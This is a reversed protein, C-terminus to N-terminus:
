ALRTLRVVLQTEIVEFECWALQVAGAALPMDVGSSWESEVLREPELALLDRVRFNHLPISVDLEVPLRAIQAGFAKANTEVDAGEDATSAPVLAREQQPAVAIQTGAAGAQAAQNPGPQNPGPQNQGASGPAAAARNPQTNPPAGPARQGQSAQSPIAVTQTAAM